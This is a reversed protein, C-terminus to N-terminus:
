DKNGAMIQVAKIWSDLEEETYSEKNQYDHKEVYSTL